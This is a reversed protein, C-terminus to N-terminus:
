GFRREKLFARFAKKTDKLIRNTLIYGHTKDTYIVVLTPKFVVGQIQAWNKFEKKGDVAVEIGHENFCLELHDHNDKLSKKSRFYVGLPQIVTFLSLFLLPLYRGGSRWGLEQITIRIEQEFYIPDTIHWRYLGFRMQSRYLTDPRLVQSLGSYSVTLTKTQADTTYSAAIPAGGALIIELSGNENFAYTADQVDHKWTGVLSSADEAKGCAGLALLCLVALMCLGILRRKM